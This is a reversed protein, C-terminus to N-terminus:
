WTNPDNIDKLYDEAFAELDWYDVNRDPIGNSGFSILM